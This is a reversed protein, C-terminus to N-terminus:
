QSPRAGAKRAGGEDRVLHALLSRSGAEILDLVTEFGEAGGDYPDPVDVHHLYPAFELFLGLHGPCTAPRIAQLEGLIARDMAFIWDFRDFDARTVPRARLPSLDYGRKAAHSISRWDPPNGAHWDITGASDITFQGAVGARQAAARFVAEATPSRCINGLCVFLVGIRQAPLAM